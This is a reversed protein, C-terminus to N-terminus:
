NRPAEQNCPECWDKKIALNIEQNEQHSPQIHSEQYLTLHSIGLLQNLISKGIVINFISFGLSLTSHPNGSLLTWYPIKIVIKL